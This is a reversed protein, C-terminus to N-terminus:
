LSRFFEFHRFFIKERRSYGAKIKLLLILHDRAIGQAVLRHAYFDLDLKLLEIAM